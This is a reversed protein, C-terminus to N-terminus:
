KRPARVDNGDQHLVLRTVKGTGDKLFEIEASSATSFFESESEPYIEVKDQGTAQAMVQGHEVSIVLDFGPHLEFTGAYKPLVNPNVQVKARIAPRYDPWGYEAAISRMVEDGLLGGADSNTMVVGGEGKNQYAVLICRYGENAGGHAFYPDAEAGGIQIGLGWNGMGKTLMQRTMAASLVRNSHGQLSQQMEIAFRALDSPTTWLGAAAMEPYTHPGGAVPTGDDRYPTAVKSRLAEPLPQQYTSHVMGLPALVTDHMFRPYPENAADIIAQQVITFGGGSYRWRSGPAAESRIPATNAPKEGNLVQALTPVPETNAYGPFGHVTIGATHSLLERLTVPKGSTSPDPPLKWSRLYTGIDTDLSLKGKEVLRLAAMASLPKSISAAQFLTDANVPAGGVATVGFGRAWDIKGQHIVAISVGPVKLAKMRDGLSLGM